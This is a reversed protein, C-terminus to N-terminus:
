NFLDIEFVLSGCSKISKSLNIHINLMNHFKILESILLDTCKSNSPALRFNYSHPNKRVEMSSLNDVSEIIGRLVIFYQAENDNMVQPFGKQILEM